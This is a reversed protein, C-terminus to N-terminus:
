LKYCKVAFSNDYSFSAPKFTKNIASAVIYVYAMQKMYNLVNMAQIAIDQPLMIYSPVILLLTCLYVEEFGDGLWLNVFDKGLVMFGWFVIGIMLIQLRGVKIMLPLISQREQHIVRSVKPLLMGNIANAYM